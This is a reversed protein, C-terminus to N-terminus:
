PVPLQAGATAPGTRFPTYRITGILGDGMPGLPGAPDGWWNNEASVPATGENVLGPGSNLHINCDSVRVDEAIRVRIGEANDRVECHTLTVRYGSIWIGFTVSGTVTIRDATIDSGTITLGAEANLNSPGGTYGVGGRMTVQSLRSGAAALRITSGPAFETNEILM